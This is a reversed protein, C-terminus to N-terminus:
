QAFFFPSPAMSSNFAEIVGAPMAFIPTVFRSNDVVVAYNRPLADTVANCRRQSDMYEDMRRIVSRLSASASASAHTPELDELLRAMSEILACVRQHDDEESPEGLVSGLIASIEGLHHLLPKGIARLYAKPVSAFEQLVQGVIECRARITAGSATFLMIRLLQLSATINAAQFGFRDEKAIYLMEPKNKFRQPLKSFRELVKQLVDQRVSPETFKSATVEFTEHVFSKQRARFSTLAHEM